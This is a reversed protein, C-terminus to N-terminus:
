CGAAWPTSRRIRSSLPSSTRRASGTREQKTQDERCCRQSMVNVLVNAQEVSSGLLEDLVLRVGLGERVEVAQVIDGHTHILVGSQPIVQDSGDVAKLSLHAPISM